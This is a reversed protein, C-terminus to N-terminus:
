HLTIEKGYCITTDHPFVDFNRVSLTLMSSDRHACGYKDLVTVHYTINGNVYALPSKVTSDSLFSGPSWMYQATGAPPECISFRLNPRINRFPAPTGSSIVCGPLTGSSKRIVSTFSTIGHA